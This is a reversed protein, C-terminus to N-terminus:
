LSMRVGTLVMLGRLRFSSSYSYYSSITETRLEGVDLLNYAQAFLLFKGLKYQLTVDLLPDNSVKVGTVDQWLWYANGRVTFSKFPYLTVSGEVTLRDVSTSSYNKSKTNSWSCTTEASFWSIPRTSLRLEADKTATKYHGDMEQIIADRSSLNYGGDLEFSFIRAGFHKRVNGRISVSENGSTQQIARTLTLDDYYISSTGTGSQGYSYRINVSAFFMRLIENYRLYIGTNYGHSKSLSGRSASASRYSRLIYNTLFDNGDGNSMSYRGDVTAAIKRFLNFKFTLNPSITPAFQWDSDGSNNISMVNLYLPVSLSTEVLRTKWTTSGSIGPTLALWNLDNEAEGITEQGTLITSRGQWLLDLYMRGSINLNKAAKVSYNVNNRASLNTYRTDQRIDTDSITYDHNNSIYKIDSNLSLAKREKVRITARLDNEVRFSPMDYKQGYFSGDDNIDSDYDHLQGTFSLTEDLYVKKANHEINLRTDLYLICDNRSDTDSIVFTDSDPFTIVQQTEEYEEWDNYAAQVLLRYKTGQKGVTLHNLSAIISNNDFYYNLPISKTSRSISFAGSFDGEIQGPTYSFVGTKGMYKQLRLEEMLDQGTDDAKLLFLDQSERGFRSLMFRGNYLFRDGYGASLDASLLWSNRSTEKLVINVASQDSFAIDDLAKIPQHNELVQISKVDGASLNKVAVGYRGQLLDLGEIYFKNIAKGNHTIGGSASVEIGPLRELVDSLTRDTEDRFAAASYEITDGRHEIPEVKVTSAKLKFQQPEMDITMKEGTIAVDATAYGMMLAKLTEATKDSAILLNFNGEADSYTAGLMKGGSFVSVYVGRLMEGTKADRVTGWIHTQASITLSAFLLLVVAFINKFRTM